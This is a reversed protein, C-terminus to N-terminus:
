LLEDGRVEFAEAARDGTAALGDTETAAKLAITKECSARTGTATPTGAANSAAAPDAGPREAPAAAALATCCDTTTSEGPRM